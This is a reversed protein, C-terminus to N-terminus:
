FMDDFSFEFYTNQSISFKNQKKNELNRFYRATNLKAKKDITLYVNNTTKLSYNTNM